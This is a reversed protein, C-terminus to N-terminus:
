LSVSKEEECESYRRLTKLKKLEVKRDTKKRKYDQYLKYASPPAHSRDSGKSKATRNTADGEKDM